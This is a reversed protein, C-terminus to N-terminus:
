KKEFRDFETVAGFEDHKCKIAYSGQSCKRDYKCNDCNRRCAELEKSSLEPLDVCEAKKAYRKVLRYKPNWSVNNCDKVYCVYMKGDAKNEFISRRNCHYKFYKNVKNIIKCAGICLLGFVGFGFAAIVNDNERCIEIVITSIVSYIFITALIVILTNM